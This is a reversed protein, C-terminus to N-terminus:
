PIAKFEQGDRMALYASRVILGVRADFDGDLSADGHTFEARLSDVNVAQQVDAITVVGRELAARVQAAVAELLAAERVLYAKDHFAPGHGPVILQLDLRSLARLTEAHLVPSPRTFPIPYSLVDGTLLIKENPLYLVTAGGADGTVSVLHIERGGHFLTLSDSYTLTPYTRHVQVAEKAYDAYLRVAEVDRRLQDPPIPKGDPGKGSAQETDVNAQNMAALKLWRVAWANANNRMFERTANTTIIELDPFAQAYVENGSWHDPHWHSNVVYRVPKNTIRRIEALVARATSPRTDTDFVLVDRDTVIAVSNLQTVYGDAPVTFQYIGDAIQTKDVRTPQSELRSLALTLVVVLLFRM